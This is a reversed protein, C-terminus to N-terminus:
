KSPIGRRASVGAAFSESGGTVYATSFDPSVRVVVARAVEFLVTGSASSSMGGAAVTPVFVRFVNGVAVGASAGQDLYIFDGQALEKNELRGTIVSCPVGDAGPDIRVPTYAPIEESILDARTLDEFSQRVKATTEGGRKPGAQIVGILYKVYGSVPRKGPSDIPGRVRYIGLLQGQPIEKRLSLYVTDGEVFGVKPDKGGVIHGIGKPAEKLFEGARVFDEPKIDLYPVRPPVATPVALAPAIAGALDSSCV